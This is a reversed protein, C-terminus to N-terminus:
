PIPSLGRMLDVSWWAILRTLLWAISTLLLPGALPREIGRAQAWATIAVRSLTLVGFNGFAAVLGTHADTTGGPGPGALVSAVIRGPESAAEMARRLSFGLLDLGSLLAVWCVFRWFPLRRGRARWWLRYVAAEALVAPIRGAVAAAAAAGTDLAGEMGALADLQTRTELWWSWALWLYFLPLGVPAFPWALPSRAPPNAPESDM